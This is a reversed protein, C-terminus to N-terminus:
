LNKFVEEHTLLNEGNRVEARARRISEMLESNSMVDITEMLRNFTEISLIVARPEGDESVIYQIDQIQYSTSMEKLLKAM